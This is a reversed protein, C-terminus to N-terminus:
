RDQLPRRRGRQERSPMRAPTPTRSWAASSSSRFAGGTGGSGRSGSSSPGPSTLKIALAVTLLLPSLVLLGLSAGALDMSRKLIWSSLSLGGRRIGLLQVGEVDDFDVSSGIVEFLRPLVSVKVGMSKVLRVAHLIEQSDSTLPAIIVRHIDHKALVLGLVDVDGLEPTQAERRRDNPLRVRGVVTANFFSRMDFSAQLRDAARPDGVVLCRETRTIARSLKRAFARSALM